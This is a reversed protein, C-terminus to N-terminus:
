KSVSMRTTAKRFSRFFARKARSAFFCPTLRTIALWSLGFASWRRIALRFFAPTSIKLVKLTVVLTMRDIISLGDIM